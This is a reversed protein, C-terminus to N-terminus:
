QTRDNKLKRLYSILSEKTLIDGNYLTFAQIANKVEPAGDKSLLKYLKLAYEKREAMPDSAVALAQAFRMISTKISQWKTIYDGGMSRFEIYGNKVNVSYYKGPNREAIISAAEKALGQKLLDFSRAMDGVNNQHKNKSVKILNTLSSQTYENSEREFDRLVYDDGLFLILKVYDINEMGGTLSLNIHLGTNENTYCEHDIYRFVSELDDMMEELPMPYSIIEMGMANPDESDRVSQDPEIVYADSHRGGHYTDNVIVTKGLYNNSLDEAQEEASGVDFTKDETTMHPWDFNYYDAVESMDTIRNLDYLFESESLDLDHRAQNELHERADDEFYSPDEWDEEEEDKNYDDAREQMENELREGVYNSILSSVWDEYDSYMKKLGHNRRIDYQDFGFFNLIDDFDTIREDYSMDKIETHDLADPVICEAEFGGIFLDINSSLFKELSSPSMNLENLTEEQLPQSFNAFESYRM